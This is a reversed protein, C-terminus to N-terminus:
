ARASSSSLIRAKCFGVFLDVSLMSIHVDSLVDEPSTFLRVVLKASFENRRAGEFCKVDFHPGFSVGALLM